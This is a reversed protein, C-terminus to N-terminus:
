GPRRSVEQVTLLVRTHHHGTHAHFLTGRLTVRKGLRSKIKKMVKPDLVLQVELVGSEAEANIEDMAGSTAAVDVAKDLRLIFAKEISDRKPDEGYGPPGPFPKVIVWGKLTVVDPEYRLVENPSSSTLFALLTLMGSLFM